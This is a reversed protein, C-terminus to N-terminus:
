GIISHRFSLRVHYTATDGNNTKIGSLSLRFNGVATGTINPVCFPVFAATGAIVAAEYYCFLDCAAEVATQAAAPSAFAVGGNNLLVYLPATVPVGQAVLDALVDRLVINVPNGDEGVQYGITYPSADTIAIPTTAM